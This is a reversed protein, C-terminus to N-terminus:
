PFVAQQLAGIRRIQRPEPGMALVKGHLKSGHEVHRTRQDLVDVKRHAPHQRQQRDHPGSLLDLGGDHSSFADDARRISNGFNKSKHWSLM